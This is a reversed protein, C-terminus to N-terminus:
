IKNIKFKKGKSKEALVIVVWIFFFFSQFIPNRTSNYNLNIKIPLFASELTFSPIILITNLIGFCCTRLVHALDPGGGGIFFELSYIEMDSITEVHLMNREDVPFPCFIDCHAFDRSTPPLVLRLSKKIRIIWSKWVHLNNHHLKREDYFFSIVM